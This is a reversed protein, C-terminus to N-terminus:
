SNILICVEEKNSIEKLKDLLEKINEKKKKDNTSAYIAEWSNKFQKLLPSVGNVLLSEIVLTNNTKTLKALDVVLDLITSNINLCIKKRMNLPNKILKDMNNLYYGSIYINRYVFNIM